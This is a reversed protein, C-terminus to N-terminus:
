GMGKGPEPELATAFRRNLFHRYGQSEAELAATFRETSHTKILRGQATHTQVIPKTDVTLCIWEKLGWHSMSFHVGHGAYGRGQSSWFITVM